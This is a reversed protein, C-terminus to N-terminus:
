RRCEYLFLYCTSIAVVSIVYVITTMITIKVVNYTQFVNKLLFWLSMVDYLCMHQRLHLSRPRCTGVVVWAYLKGFLRESTPYLLEKNEAPIFCTSSHEKKKRCFTLCCPLITRWTQM